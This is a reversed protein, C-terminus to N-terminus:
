AVGEVLTAAHYLPVFVLKQEPLEAYPATSLVLGPACGPNGALFRHLSRLKGAPGSKVEVARIGKRTELLYDIEATSGPAARSWYRIDAHSAAILEQGVFQEALVGNYIALLDSKAFEVDVRMGALRQM